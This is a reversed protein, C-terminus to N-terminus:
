FRANLGIAIAKSPRMISYDPDVDEKTAKWIIGINSVMMSLSLDSLFSAQIKSKDFTYALRIDQLRINDGKEILVSSLTYFNDRGADPLISLSPVNTRQEDGSSTWKKSYDSHTSWNAFLDGYRVSPRRFYYKLRYTINFSFEFGKFGFNSLLNGSIRPVASGPNILDADGRDRNAIINRYTAVTDGLYGMPDGNKSDLGAWKYGYIGYLQKGTIVAIGLYNSPDKLADETLSNFELVKDTNYNLNLHSRFRVEKAFLLDGALQFDFGKSLISGYNGTFDMFGRTADVLVPGILDSGKKRYYEFSGSLRSKLLAFKVGMNLVGVKEWTLDPNSPSVVGAVPFNSYISRLSNFYSILPLSSVRNNINGNWGYTMSISLNDFISSNMFPENGLNWLGGASWLPVRRLNANVGMLNTEDIRISGSVTYKSGYTYAANAYYNKNRNLTGFTSSENTLNSQGNPRTNYLTLYDINRM